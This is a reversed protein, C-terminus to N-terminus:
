PLRMVLAILGLYLWYVWLMGISLALMGWKPFHPDGMAFGFLLTVCLGLFALPVFVIRVLPELLVLFALVALRGGNWAVLLGACVTIRVLRGLWGTAGGIAARRVARSSASLAM